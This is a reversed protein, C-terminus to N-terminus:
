WCTTETRLKGHVRAMVLKFSSCNGGVRLREIKVQLMDILIILRQFEM